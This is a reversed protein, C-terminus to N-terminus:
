SVTHKYMAFVWPISAQLVSLTSVLCGLAEM